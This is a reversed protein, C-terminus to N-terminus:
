LLSVPLAADSSGPGSGIVVEIRGGGMALALSLAREADALLREPTAGPLHPFAIGASVHVPPGDGTPLLSSALVDTMRRAREVTATYSVTEESLVAFGGHGLEVVTDATAALADVRDGVARLLERDDLSRGPGQETAPGAEVQLMTVALTRDVGSRQQLAQAIAKLVLERAADPMAPDRHRSSPPPDLDADTVEVLAVLHGIVQGDPDFVRRPVLHVAAERTRGFVKVPTAVDARVATLLTGPPVSQLVSLWRQGRSAFASLGTLRSWARNTYSAHGDVDVVVVPTPLGAAVLAVTGAATPLDYWRVPSGEPQELLGVVEDLDVGGRRVTGHDPCRVRLSAQPGREVVAVPADVDDRGCWCTLGDVSERGHGLDSM